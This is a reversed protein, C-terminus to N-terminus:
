VFLVKPDKKIKDLLRIQRWKPEPVMHYEPTSTTYRGEV